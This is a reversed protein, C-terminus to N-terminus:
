DQNLHNLIRVRSNGDNGKEVQIQVSIREKIEHRHSIIGITKQSDQQLKELMVIATDLSEPDLTGFGEDVFLSDIQVNQSALDSLALALGLSLTFTEGGSLSTVTREAGGQYQDVVYLEDQGDRPKLLLYRDSLDRLRRNALGILQSLTLSQAFRSYEDGKASGILRNLERWPLAENTLTTLEATLKQQRKQEKDNSLLQAKVNGLQETKQRQEKELDKVKQQVEAAPLDTKRAEQAAKQKAKEQGVRLSLSLAEDALIRQEEQLQRLMPTDLLCQRATAADPLSRATLQPQLQGELKEIQSSANDYAKTTQNLLGQQTAIESQFQNFQQLLQACREKVDDADYREQKQQQLQGILDTSERVTQLDDTLRDLMKEEEWLSLLLALEKREAEAMLQMDKLAELQLEAESTVIALQESILQKNTTFVKRLTQRQVDLQNSEAKASVLQNNLTECEDEKNKIDEALLRLQVDITGTKQIYHQAYPHDISGCLPCPEGSTLGKRLEDLNVEEAIRIRQQELARRQEELKSLETLLQQLTPKNADVFAQKEDILKKLEMGEALREQQQKQLEILASLQNERQIHREIEARVQEPTMQPYEDELQVLQVGIKQRRAMAQREIEAADTPDLNRLWVDEATEVLNQIRHRPQILRDQESRIQQMLALVEDRFANLDVDFTQQNLTPQRTLSQAQVVLADIKRQIDSIAVRATQQQEGARNRQEEINALDSLAVTLDAILEHQRLRETQPAFADQRENLAIQQLILNALENRAQSEDDVFGSENRYLLIEKALNKLRAEIATRQDTLESVREDPLLQILSTERQKDRILDDYERSRIHARQSLKRYIDTGTIQELLKSREGSTAKLFKDFAGQALVMSRIFQEYTLGIKEANLGPVDRKRSSLIEGNPLQALEMEYDNWNGNRNREMSWRSRFVQGKLEYDVEAYVAAKPEYAAKQNVILGEAIIKEKSLGRGDVDSIRPIRNFLALTIVDLLTSKGAGTSGTIIFLGTQQLLGETFTIPPHDGYFSNINRFRIQRIKM